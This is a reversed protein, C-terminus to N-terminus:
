GEDEECYDDIFKQAAKSGLKVATQFDECALYDDEDDDNYLYALGRGEFFRYDEANIQIANSFCVIAKSYEQNINYYKGLYYSTFENTSDHKYASNFNTFASDYQELFYLNYGKMFYAFADTSDQHIMADLDQISATRDELTEALFMSRELRFNRKKPDLQISKNFDELAGLTDNIESRSLAREHYASADNPYKVIFYSFDNEARFHENLEAYCLGRNYFANVRKSNKSIATDFYKIASEFNGAKYLVKASNFYYKYNQAPLNSFIFFSCLFLIAKM